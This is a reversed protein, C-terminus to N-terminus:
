FVLGFVVYVLGIIILVATSGTKVNDPFDNDVTLHSGLFIVIAILVPM